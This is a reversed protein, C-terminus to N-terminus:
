ALLNPQIEHYSPSFLIHCRNYLDHEVLFQKSWDYDARSCIVFKLQDQKNLYKFNAFLNKDAEKSDPTKVDLVKIVSHNVLSVDMAGSTELSVTHTEILKDMLEISNKQALPEGGTITVYAAGLQHVTDIISDISTKKGGNFAYDTDCYQCRLPCGTLRIFTTPLGVLTSEGQLSHFIETIRLASM